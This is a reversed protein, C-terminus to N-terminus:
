DGRYECAPPRQSNCSVNKQFELLGNNMLVMCAPDGPTILDTNVTSSWAMPDRRSDVLDSFTPEPHVDDNRRLKNNVCTWTFNSQKSLEEPIRFTTYAM